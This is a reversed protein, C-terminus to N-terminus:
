EFPARHQYFAEAIIAASMQLKFGCVGALLNLTESHNPCPEKCEAQGTSGAELAATKM